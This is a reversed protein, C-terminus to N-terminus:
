EIGARLRSKYGLRHLGESCAAELKNKEDTSLLDWYNIPTTLSSGVSKIWQWDKDSLSKKAFVFKLLRGLQQEPDAVISEYSIRLLQEKELTHFADIGAIEWENWLRGFEELPLEHEEELPINNRKKIFMRFIEHRSMSYAADRGDRFLHIIKADPWTEIIQAAHPISAGTREIWLKKSFRDKLLVIFRIFHNAPCDKPWTTIEERLAALLQEPDNSLAPLTYSLLLSVKNDDEPLFKCEKTKSNRWVRIREPMTPQSIMKFFEEGDVSSDRDFYPVGAIPEFLESIVIIDPHLNLNDAIFTSGCRGTSIIFIPPQSQEPAM